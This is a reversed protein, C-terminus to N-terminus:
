VTEYSFLHGLGTKELVRKLNATVGVLRVTHGADNAHQRMRILFHLFPPTVENFAGLDLIIPEAEPEAAISKGSRSRGRRVDVQSGCM